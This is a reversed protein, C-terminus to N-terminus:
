LPWGKEMIKEIEKDREEALGDQWEKMNEVTNYSVYDWVRYKQRLLWRYKRADKELKEAETRLQDILEQVQEKTVDDGKRAYQTAIWPLVEIVKEIFESM